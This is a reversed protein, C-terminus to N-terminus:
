PMSQSCCRRSASGKAAEPVEPSRRFASRSSSGEPCWWCWWWAQVVGVRRVDRRKALRPMLQAVVVSRDAEVGRSQSPTSSPNCRRAPSRGSHSYNPVSTKWWASWRRCLNTSRCEPAPGFELLLMSDVSFALIELSSLRIEAWCVLRVASSFLALSIMCSSGECNCPM